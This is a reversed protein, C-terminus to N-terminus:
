WSRVVGLYKWSKLGPDANLQRKIKDFAEVWTVGTETMQRRSKRGGVETVEVSIRHNDAM